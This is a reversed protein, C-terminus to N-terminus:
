SCRPPWSGSRAGVGGLSLGHDGRAARLGVRRDGGGRLVRVRVARRLGYYGYPQPGGPTSGARRRRRRASSSCSPASRSPWRWGPSAPWPSAVAARGAERRRAAAAGVRRPAGARGAARPRRHGAHRRQLRQRLQHRGPPRPGRRGAAVARWARDVDVTARRARRASWCRCSPPRCRAPGRGPWGRAGGPRPPPPAPPPWPPRTEGPSDTRQWWAAAPRARRRRAPTRRRRQLPRPVGAVGHEGEVRPQGGGARAAAARRPARRRAPRAPRRGRRPWWRCVPSGLPTTRVWSATAADARAVLARSPTSGAGVAPEGAQREGVDAPKPADGPRQEGARREGDVVRKSASATSGAAASPQM